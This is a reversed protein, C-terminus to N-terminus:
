SGAAAQDTDGKKSPENPNRRNLLAYQVKYHDLGCFGATTNKYRIQACVLKHQLAVIDDRYRRQLDLLMVAQWHKDELYGEPLDEAATSM